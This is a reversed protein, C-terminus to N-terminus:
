NCHTTYSALKTRIFRYITPLSAVTQRTTCAHLWWTRSNQQWAYNRVLYRHIYLSATYVYLATYWLIVSAYRPHYSDLKIELAVRFWVFFKESVIATTWYKFSACVVQLKWTIHRIASYVRCHSIPFLSRHTNPLTGRWQYRADLELVSFLCRRYYLLWQIHLVDAYSRYM